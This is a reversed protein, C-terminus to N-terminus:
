KSLGDDTGYKQKEKMQSYITQMWDESNESGHIWGSYNKTEIVFVRYSSIIVHDIQSTGKETPLMIDNLM